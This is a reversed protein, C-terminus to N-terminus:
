RHRHLLVLLCFSAAFVVCRVTREAHVQAPSPLVQLGTPGGSRRALLGTYLAEGVGRVQGFDSGSSIAVRHWRRWIERQRRHRDFLNIYCGMLKVREHCQLCAATNLGTWVLLMRRFSSIEVCIENSVTATKPLLTSRQKSMTAPTSPTKIRCHAM